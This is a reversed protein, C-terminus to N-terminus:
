TSVVLAGRADSLWAEFSPTTACAVRLPENSDTPQNM